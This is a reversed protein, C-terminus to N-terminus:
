QILSKLTRLASVEGPRSSQQYKLDLTSSNQQLMIKIQKPNLEPKAALMLAIVGSVHSTAM